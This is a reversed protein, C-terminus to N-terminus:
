HGEEEVLTIPFRIADTADLDSSAFVELHDANTFHGCSWIEGAIRFYGDESEVATITTWGRTAPVEDFGNLVSHTVGFLDSECARGEIEFKIEAPNRSSATAHATLIEPVCDQTAAPEIVIKEAAIDKQTVEYKTVNQVDTIAEVEGHIPMPTEQAEEVCAVTLTLLAALLKTKNSLQM